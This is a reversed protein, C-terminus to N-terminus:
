ECFGLVRGLDGAFKTDRQGSQPIMKVADVLFQAGVIAQFGHHVGHL